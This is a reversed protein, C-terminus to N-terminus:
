IIDCPSKMIEFLEISVTYKGVMFIYLSVAAESTEARVLVTDVPLVSYKSIIVLKTLCYCM